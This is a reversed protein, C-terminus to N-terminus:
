WHVVPYWLTGCPVMMSWRSGPLSGRPARQAGKPSEPLERPEEQPEKPVRKPDRPAGKPGEQARKPSGQTGRPGEQSGRRSKQFWKPDYQTTDKSALSRLFLVVISDFSETMNGLALSHFTKCFYAPITFCTRSYRRVVRCPTTKELGFECFDRM